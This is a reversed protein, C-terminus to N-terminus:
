RGPIIPMGLFAKVIQVTTWKGVKELTIVNKPSHYINKLETKKEEIQNAVQTKIEGSILKPNSYLAQLKRIETKKEEIKKAVKLKINASLNKAKKKNIKEKIKKNTKISKEAEDNLQKIQSKKYSVLNINLYEKALLSINEPSTIVENDIIAQDLNYRIVNISVELNNIEKQLIRTENKVASVFLLGCVFLITILSYKHMSNHTNKKPITNTWRDYDLQNKVSSFRTNKTSLSAIWKEQNIM